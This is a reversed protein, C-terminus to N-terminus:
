RVGMSEDIVDVAQEDTFSWTFRFRVGRHELVLTLEEINEHFIDKSYFVFDGHGRFVSLSGLTQRDKHGDQNLAVVDGYRNRRATRKEWDWMKVVHKDRSHDIDVPEYRHGKDDVLYARWNRVDVYEKWKHELQVHVRLRDRTVVTFSAKNHLPYRDKVMLTANTSGGIAARPASLEHDGTVIDIEESVRLMENPFALPNPQIAEGKFTKGCGVAGALAAIAVVELSSLRGM